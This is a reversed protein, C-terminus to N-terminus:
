CFGSFSSKTQVPTPEIKVNRTHTVNDKGKIEAAMTVFAKEVNTANKASVEL